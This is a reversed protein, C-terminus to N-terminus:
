EAMKSTMEEILKLAQQLKDNETSCQPMLGDNSVDNMSQSTRPDHPPDGMEISDYDTPQEMIQDLLNWNRHKANTNSEDRTQCQLRKKRMKVMQEHKKVRRELVIRQVATTYSFLTPIFDPHTPDKSPKGVCWWMHLQKINHHKGKVFHAGCLRSYETSKWGERRIAAEWAERRDEPFRHFSQECLGQENGCEYAVCRSPM